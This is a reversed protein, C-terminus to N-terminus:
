DFGKSQLRERRFRGVRRRHSDNKARRNTEDIRREINEYPCGSFDFASPLATMDVYEPKSFNTERRKHPMPQQKDRLWKVAYELNSIMGGYIKQDEEPASEKMEKTLRLTERYEELLDELLNM